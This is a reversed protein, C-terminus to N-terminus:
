RRGRPWAPGEVRREGEVYSLTAGARPSRLSPRARARSTGGSGAGSGSASASILAIVIDELSASKPANAQARLAAVTGDGAIAGNAIVAVRAALAELEGLTHTSLIVAREAALESLLSRLERAQVPDLGSAPEDLLLVPPDALLADALGVRQRYGKSLTSIVRREEGRLACREVV